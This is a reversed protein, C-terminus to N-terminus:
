LKQAILISSNKYTRDTRPNLPKYPSRDFDTIVRADFLHRNQLLKFRKAILDNLYNPSYHVFNMNPYLIDNESIAHPYSIFVFGGTNLLHAVNNFFENSEDPPSYQIVGISYIFEFKIEFKNKLFDGHFLNAHPVTQKALALMKKNIDIGFLHHQTPFDKLYLGPGCGIDLINSKNTGLYKNVTEKLLVHTKDICEQVDKIHSYGANEQHSKNPDPQYNIWYEKANIDNPKCIIKAIKNRLKNLM